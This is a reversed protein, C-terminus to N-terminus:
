TRARGFDYVAAANDFEVRRRLVSPLMALFEEPATAHQHPHDTSFLLFDDSGIQALTHLLEEAVVPADIPQLSARFHERVYESPLRRVWPTERRLGKWEKDLRWLLSPLWTWGGELLAIRLGPYREFIGEAILSLVQAQFATIMGVYEEFYYTPWGVSTTPNGTAGGFHIGVALRHRAAAEFLPEYNRNGYPHESRVPLLVQVFGPHGAVREIERAAALPYKPDVVISARLRPERDLWCDILWDNVASALAAAWDPHRLTDVGYLCNLIGFEVTLPDLVQRRLQDLGAQASSGVPLVAAPRSTTPAGRPYANPYGLSGQFRSTRMFERWRSALYPSLELAGPYTPHLDVDIVAM